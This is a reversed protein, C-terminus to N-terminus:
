ILARSPLFAYAVRVMKKKVGSPVRFGMAISSLRGGVVGLVRDFRTM